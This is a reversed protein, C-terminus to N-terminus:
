GSTVASILARLSAASPLPIFSLDKNGASLNAVTIGRAAMSATFGSEDADTRYGLSRERATVLPSALITALVRGAPTWSVLTDQTIVDPDPYMVVVDSKRPIEGSIAASLYSSEYTLAMPLGAMGETLFENLLLATSPTTGGLETFMSRIIRVRPDGPQLTTLPEDNNQAAYALAAFLAGSDSTSPNSTQLLIPSQSPYVANGAIGSWRTGSAVVRLYAAVNFVPLGNVQTVVGIRALLAAIPRHTVIVLPSEDPTAVYPVRGARALEQEVCSQTYASASIEADYFATLRPLGCLQVSGLATSQVMIGHRLLESRIAPDSFLASDGAVLV